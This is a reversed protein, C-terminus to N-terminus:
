YMDVRTSALTTVKQQYKFLHSGHLPSSLINKLIKMRSSNFNNIITTAKYYKISSSLPIFNYNDM